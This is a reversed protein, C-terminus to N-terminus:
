TNCATTQETGLNWCSRLLHHHQVKCSFVAALCVYRACNETWAFFKFHTLRQRV